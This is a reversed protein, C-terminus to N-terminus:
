KLYEKMLGIKKSDKERIRWEPNNVMSLEAQVPLIPVNYKKIKMYKKQKLMTNLHMWDGNEIKIEPDGNIEVLIGNIMLKGFWSRFRLSSSLSEKVEQTGYQSLSNYIEFADDKNTFIDIDAPDLKIGQLVLSASGVIMWDLQKDHIGECIIEVVPNIDEENM